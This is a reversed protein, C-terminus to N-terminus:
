KLTSRVEHAQVDVVNSNSNEPQTGGPPWSGNRFGKSARVINSFQEFAAPRKGTIRAWTMLVLVGLGGVLLLMLFVAGFIAFVGIRVLLRLVNAM